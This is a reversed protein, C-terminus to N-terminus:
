LKNKKIIRMYKLFEKNWIETDKPYVYNVQFNESVYQRVENLSSFIGMTRAQCMINGISSAESPGAIVIKGTADATFQNLLNNKSGGGIIHLYDINREALSSFISLVEKYKMALSELIIRIYEADTLPLRQGTRNLYDCIAKPMNQPNVFMEDDPNIFAIFPEAVSALKLIDEYSYNIGNRNWFDLCREVLWMGTINKLLRITKDIGGENTINNSETIENIIPESVEIGMLSWTGSSLYAFDANKAPVALVASATDHEAVSVVALNDINIEECIENSLHGVITGPKHIETFLKENVGLVEILKDSWSCTLSDLLGSTSAITYETTKRGTLMYILADPLFLLKDAIDLVPSLNYKYTYLQFITNFDLHQIGTLSYLSNADMKESFFLNCSGIFSPDRYSLPLSIIDGTKDLLVFDVGWTDIGISLPRIGARAIIGLSEKINDYLSYIDWYFKNNLHLMKNPFRMIESLKFGNDSFEGLMARGSTAGLDFGIFYKNEM